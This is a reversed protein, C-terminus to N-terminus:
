SFKEPIFSIFSVLVKLLTEWTYYTFSVLVKLWTELDYEKCVTLIGSDERRNESIYPFRKLYEEISLSKTM